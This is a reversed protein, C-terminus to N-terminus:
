ATGGFTDLPLKVSTRWAKRALHQEASKHKGGRNWYWESQRKRRCTRCKRRIQGESGRLVLTNDRSYPHGQPCHTKKQNRHRKRAIMDRVNTAHDALYLHSPNCCMPTDCTHCVFMHRPPVVQATLAWALRSSPISRGYWGCQGYGRRTTSVGIWLWCEDPGRVDVRSWFIEKTTRAIKTMGEGMCTAGTGDLTALVSIVRNMRSLGLAM